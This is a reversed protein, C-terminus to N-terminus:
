DGAVRFVSFIGSLVRRFVETVRFTPTELKSDRMRHVIHSRLLFLIGYHIPRDSGPFATRPAENQFFSGVSRVIELVTRSYTKRNTVLWLDHRRTLLSLHHLISERIQFQIVVRGQQIRDILHEHIILKSIHLVVCMHTPNRTGRKPLRIKLFLGLLLRWFEELKTLSDEKNEAGNEEDDDYPNEHTEEQLAVRLFHM